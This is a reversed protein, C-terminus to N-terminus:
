AVTSPSHHSQGPENSTAPLDFFEEVDAQARGLGYSTVYDRERIIGRYADRWPGLKCAKRFRALERPSLYAESRKIAKRDLFNSIARHFEHLM